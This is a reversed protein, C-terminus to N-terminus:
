LRDSDVVEKWIDQVYSQFLPQNRIAITDRDRPFDITFIKKVVSPSHSLVVVKNSLAVAERIDHTVMVMTKEERNLINYVDGSVDLRTQYDLASFAEDLLLLDPKVALTRILSVRQRMGGSLESPFRDRFQGLGYKDLLSLAYEKNEETLKGQIELGLIINKYVTRWPLLNDNQLMYGIKNNFGELPKGKFLISGEDRNISGAIISLLSSKGCGSPGLISVFDGNDINFSIDEIAMIEEKPLQYRLSINEIELIKEM